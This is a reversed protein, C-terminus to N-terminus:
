RVSNSDRWIVERPSASPVTGPKVTACRRGPVSVENNRSSSLRVERQDEDVPDAGVRKAAAEVQRLDRERVDIADLDHAPRLTRNMAGIGDASDHLHDCAFPPLGVALARM